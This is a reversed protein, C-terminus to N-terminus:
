WAKRVLQGGVATWTVVPPRVGIGLIDSLKATPVVRKTDTKLAHVSQAKIYNTKM